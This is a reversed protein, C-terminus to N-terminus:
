FLRFFQVGRQLFSDEAVVLTLALPHSARQRVVVQYNGSGIMGVDGRGDAHWPNPKRIAFEFPTFAIATARPMGSEFCVLVEDDVDPMFQAGGVPARFTTQGAAMGHAKRNKSVHWVRVTTGHSVRTLEDSVLQKNPPPMPGFQFSCELLWNQVALTARRRTGDAQFMTSNM